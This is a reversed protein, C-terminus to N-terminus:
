PPDSTYRSKAFNTNSCQSRWVGAAMALIRNDRMGQLLVMRDCQKQILFVHAVAM